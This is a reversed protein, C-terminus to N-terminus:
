LIEDDPDINSCISLFDKSISLFVWGSMVSLDNVLIYLILDFQEQLLRDFM